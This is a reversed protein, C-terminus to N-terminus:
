LIQFFVSVLTLFLVFSSRTLLHPVHFFSLFFLIFYIFLYISLIFFFLFSYTCQSWNIWSLGCWICWFFYHHFWVFWLGTRCLSSSLQIINTYSFEFKSYLDEISSISAFLAFIFYIFIFIFLFLFHFLFPFLLMCLKSEHKCHSLCGWFLVDWWIRMSIARSQVLTMAM